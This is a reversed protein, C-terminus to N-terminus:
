SGDDDGGRWPPTRPLDFDCPLQEGGIAAFATEVWREGGALPWPLADRAFFGVQRTELPHGRLEGGLMRCHFVLSYLPLRAFGLRLGDFVAILSLPEVEIGTEEYVEKVAVESPSYGVDAWGVPYLWVGSDSRQTLLIEGAENGVVAAVAVKPTVYGGVGEGVTALWEEFLADSEAEEIAAARIDAAVRLVEQFREKEYLSETFGLGTRAVGSLTEAWRLLDAASVVHPETV